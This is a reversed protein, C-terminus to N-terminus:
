LFIFSPFIKTFLYWELPKWKDCLLRAPLSHKFVGFGLQDFHGLHTAYVKTDVVNNHM